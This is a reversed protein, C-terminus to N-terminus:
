NRKNLEEVLTGLVQVSPGKKLLKGQTDYVQLYPLDKVGHETALESGWEVIDLKYIMLREGYTRKLSVLSRDLKKCPGCWEAYFDFVTIKGAKIHPKLDISKGKSLVLFNANVDTADSAPKDGGCACFFATMLLLFIRM